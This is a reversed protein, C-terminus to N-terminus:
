VSKLLELKVLLVVDSQELTSYVYCIGPFWLSTCQFLLYADVSFSLLEAQIM